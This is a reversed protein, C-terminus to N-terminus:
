LLLRIVRDDVTRIVFKNVSAGVFSVGSVVAADTVLNLGSTNQIQFLLPVSM